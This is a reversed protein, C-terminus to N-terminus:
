LWVRDYALSMRSTILTAAASGPLTLRPRGQPVRVRERYVGPRIGPIVRGVSELPCVPVHDIARQVTQFDGGDGAAVEARIIQGAAPRATRLLLRAPWSAWARSGFRRREPM